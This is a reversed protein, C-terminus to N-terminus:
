TWIEFHIKFLPLSIFYEKHKLESKITTTFPSQSGLSFQAQSGSLSLLQELAM